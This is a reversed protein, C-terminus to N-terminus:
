KWYPGYEVKDADKPREEIPYTWEDSYYRAIDERIHIEKGTRTGDWRKGMIGFLIQLAGGMHIAQKGNQKIYAALAFGYAGCGLLAVDFDINMIEKKMFDLADFWTDFRPDKIEGITLLSKYTILEKFEPLINNGPFLKERKSYQQKVSDTFPTVVLVRKGELAKTWEVNDRCVDFVDFSHAIYSGNKMFKNAFYNECLNYNPALLDMERLADSQTKLFKKGLSIDNPFFGACNYINDMVLSYKNKKDFEYMRMAALEFLGIRGAVFPEGSKIKKQIYESSTKLDLKTHKCYKVKGSYLPIKKRLVFDVAYFFWIVKSAM